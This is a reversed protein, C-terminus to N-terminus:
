PTSYTFYEETVEGPHVAVYDRKPNALNQPDVHGTTSSLTITYDDAPPLTSFVACGTGADTTLTQVTTTERTLQVQVGGQKMGAKDEVLVYLTGTTAAVANLDVTRISSTQVPAVGPPRSPWDVSVLVQQAVSRSPTDVGCPGPAGPQQVFAAWRRVVYPIGGTTVTKRYTGPNASDLTWNPDTSTPGPLTTPDAASAAELVRAALSAATVRHENTRSLRSAGDVSALVVTSLVAFLAMAVVVEILTFGDDHQARRWRNM